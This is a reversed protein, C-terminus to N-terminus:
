IQVIPCPDIPDNLKLIASLRSQTVRSENMGESDYKEKSTLSKLSEMLYNLRKEAWLKTLCIMIEIECEPLGSETWSNVRLLKTPSQNSIMPLMKKIFNVETSTAHKEDELGHKMGFRMKERKGKGLVGNNRWFELHALEHVLCFSTSFVPRFYLQDNEICFLFQWVNIFAGEPIPSFAFSINPQLTFAIRQFDHVSLKLDCKKLIGEVEVVIGNWVPRFTEVFEQAKINKWALWALHLKSKEDNSLQIQGFL